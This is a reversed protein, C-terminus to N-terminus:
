VTATFTISMKPLSMMVRTGAVTTIVQGHEKTWDIPAFPPLFPLAPRRLPSVGHGGSCWGLLSNLSTRRPLDRLSSLPPPCKRISKAPM